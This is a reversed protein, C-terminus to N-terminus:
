VMATRGTQTHGNLENKSAEAVPPVDEPTSHGGGYGCEAYVSSFAEGDSEGTLM